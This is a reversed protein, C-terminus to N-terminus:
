RGIEKLKELVYTDKFNEWTMQETYLDQREEAVQWRIRKMEMKYDDIYLENRHIERQKDLMLGNLSNIQDRLKKIEDDSILPVIVENVVQTSVKRIEYGFIIM